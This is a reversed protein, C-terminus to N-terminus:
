HFQHILIAQSAFVVMFWAGWRISSLTAEMMPQDKDRTLFIGIILIAIGILIGAILQWLVGM